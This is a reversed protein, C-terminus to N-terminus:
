KGIKRLAVKAQAEAAIAADEAEVRLREADAAAAKEKMAARHRTFTKRIDTKAAVTYGNPYRDNKSYRPKM